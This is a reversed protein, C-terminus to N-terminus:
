LCIRVMTALCHCHELISRLPLVAIVWLTTESLAMSLREFDWLTSKLSLHQSNELMAASSETERNTSKFCANGSYFSGQQMSLIPYKYLTLDLSAESLLLLETLAGRTCTQVSM